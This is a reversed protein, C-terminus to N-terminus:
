YTRDSGDALFSMKRLTSEPIRSREVPNVDLPSVHDTPNGVASPTTGIRITRRFGARSVEVQHQSIRDLTSGDPLRAGVFLRAGSATIVSPIRGSRVELVDDSFGPRGLLPLEEGEIHLKGLTGDMRSMTVVATSVLDNAVIDAITVSLRRLGGHNRFAQEAGSRFIRYDRAQVQAAFHGAGLHSVKVPAAIPVSDRLSQELVDVREVRMLGHHEVEGLLDELRKYQAADRVYGEAVVKRPQGQTSFRVDSLGMEDARVELQSLRDVPTLDPARSATAVGSLWLVVVGLVFASSIAVGRKIARTASPLWRTRRPMPVTATSSQTGPRSLVEPSSIGEFKMGPPGFAVSVRGLTLVNGPQFSFYKDITLPATGRWGEGVLISIQLGSDDVILVALQREKTGTEVVLDCANADAGIFYRGPPLPAEVSAQPGNLVHLVWQSDVSEATGTGDEQSGGSTALTPAENSM